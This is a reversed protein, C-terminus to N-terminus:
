GQHAIRWCHHINKRRKFDQGITKDTINEAMYKGAVGSDMKFNRLNTSFYLTGQRTLLSMSREILFIHDKQVDLADSMRKSNSFTPPDLFILDFQQGNQERLWKMCDAQVLQHAKGTIGNLELNRGAWDLYTRSMDVTTTSLAGGKAAQVTAAGTYAFLNLFNKGTAEQFITQRISRHDLFLGTDLYDQFNVLLRASGEGVECFRGEAELKEYQNEGRQRARTKYFLHDDDVDFVSQVVTVLESTRLKVKDPDIISPAAYEQICIWKEGTVKSSEYVDVAASYDPLDADYVRYCTVTERRAWKEIQKLNKSLRNRFMVAQESLQDPSFRRPLRKDRFFQDQEISFHILKCSIAGNFLTHLKEARIGLHKGLAQDETFVAAKWGKLNVKMVEGLSRYLSPLEGSESMRRGYPPNTVMLGKAPFDHRFDEVNQYVFRVKDQVGAREANRDARELVRRDCDFGLMVPLKELGKERRYNAEALLRDWVADQHQRWHLFGYESRTLGPAIDAAMLAAEIVLTGSGCMLDVLAGHDAAVKPWRSRLLIAAALNEKLPADGSELRYNRQHLSAGSLDLYLEAHDKFLYCNIRVDPNDVDVSPREGGRKSFSDVIADKIKLAAYHSHTINSSSVNTDVALTNTADLHRRWDIERVGEYLAEPSDAPFSALPLLVRNALRSWLCVRYTTEITGEFYVGARSEKVNAAGIQGIEMALLDTMGNPATAFFAQDTM